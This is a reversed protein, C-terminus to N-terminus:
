FGSKLRKLAALRQTDSDGYADAKMKDLSTTAPQAGYADDKMHELAGSLTGTQVSEPRVSATHGALTTWTGFGIAGGAVIIAAVIAMRIRHTKEGRASLEVASERTGVQVM